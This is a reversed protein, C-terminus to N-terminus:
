PDFTTIIAARHAVLEPDSESWSNLWERYSIAKFGVDAGEVAAAFRGIEQRHLAKVDDGYKAPEAFLYVLHPRKRKKRGETVLGFSHKVLQAADLFAFSTVGSRLNDRMAEFPGMQDGWVRRDYADSLAVKKEDRFPEHRKSEIGIIAESTEIWADLWPHRGGRWPFRACYEVEVVIAPSVTLMPFLPLRDARKHFWGFTNVALAASSELSALKGSGVENGGAKRLRALVYEVPVGPLFYLETPPTM